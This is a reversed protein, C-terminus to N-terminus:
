KANPDKAASASAQRDRAALLEAKIKAQDAPAIVAADRNPPLDEVPLYAGAEKPRDPADSPTGIFPLDAISTSCGGLALASLLLTGAALARLTRDVSMRGSTGVECV